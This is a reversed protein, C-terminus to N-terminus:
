RHSAGCSDSKESCVAGGGAHTKMWDRYVATETLATHAELPEHHQEILDSPKCKVKKKNKQCDPWSSPSSVYESMLQCTRIIATCRCRSIPNPSAPSCTVRVRLVQLPGFNSCFILQRNTLSHNHISAQAQCFLCCQPSMVSSTQQNSDGPEYNWTNTWNPQARISASCVCM